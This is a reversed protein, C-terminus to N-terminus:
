GWGSSCCHVPRRAAAHKQLVGESNLQQTGSLLEQSLHSAKAERLARPVLAGNIGVRPWEM